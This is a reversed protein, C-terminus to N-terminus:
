IFGLVKVLTYVLMIIVSLSSFAWFSARIDHLQATLYSIFHGARSFVYVWYLIQAFLLSPDSIVFLLGAVLFGPISELDNLNIRRSREVFENIDLQGERPNPNAPSKKLDEPNRFGGNVKLMRQVTMWPQLMLKLLMICSVIIYTQFVPNQLTLLNTETMKLVKFFKINTFYKLM